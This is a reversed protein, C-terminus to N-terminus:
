NGPQPSFKLNEPRSAALSLHQQDSTTKSDEPKTNQKNPKAGLNQKGM